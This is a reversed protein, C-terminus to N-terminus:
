QNFNATKRHRRMLLFIVGVALLIVVLIPVALQEVLIDLSSPNPIPTSIPAPLQTISPIPLFPELKVLYMMGQTPFTSYGEPAIGLAAIAGDSTEIVSTLLLPASANSTTVTYTITRIWQKNNNSDTKTINGYTWYISGNDSTSINGGIQYGIYYPSTYITYNVSLDPLTTFNRIWQINGQSGMKILTPTIASASNPFYWWGSIEYGKDNTQIIGSGTFHAITKSWQLNGKSDVKFVTAPELSNQYTYGLDMFAYGGDSTQILNSSELVHNKYNGSFTKQWEIAPAQNSSQANVVASQITVLPTLLLFFVSMLAVHKSM